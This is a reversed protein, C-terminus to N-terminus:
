STMRSSFNSQKRVWMVCFIWNYALTLGLGALYKLPRETPYSGICPTLFARTGRATDATTNMVNQSVSPPEVWWLYSYCLAIIVSSCDQVPAPFRPSGPPLWFLLGAMLGQVYVLGHPLHLFAIFKKHRHICLYILSLKRKLLFMRFNWLCLHWKRFNAWHSHFFM